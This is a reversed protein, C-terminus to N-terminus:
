DILLCSPQKPKARGTVDELIALVPGDPLAVREAWLQLDTARLNNTIEPALIALGTKSEIKNPLLGADALARDARRLAIDSWYAELRRDSREYTFWLENSGVWDALITLSALQWCIEAVVREGPQEVSPPEFLNIVAVIFDAAHQLAAGVATPAEFSLNLNPPRGHHGTVADILKLRSSRRWKPSLKELASHADHIRADEGFLAEGLMWRGLDDHRAPPPLPEQLGLEVPWFQPAQMQFSRSFKGVDHLAIWAALWQLADPPSVGLTAAIRQLRAPRAFLLRVAVAAVDLCHYAASHFATGERARRAKGWYSLFATTTTEAM